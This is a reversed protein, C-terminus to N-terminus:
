EFNILAINNNEDLEGILNDKDLVLKIEKASRKKLKLNTVSYAVGGGFVIEGLDFDEIKSDGDMVSLMVNTADITGSNKVTVNFDLYIGKKVGEVDLFYLDALNEQSYLKKLDEIVSNDLQQSCSQLIPYMISNQDLSHDFGFVHLLEHLEINPWTCKVGRSTNYLLIVGETIVNYRGTQVVEKAGGEGAIFFDEDIDEISRSEESCVVKIDADEQTEYFKIIGINTKLESFAALMRQKKESNCDAAIKYYISNSNFKMNPYFQKVVYSLNITTQPPPHLTVNLDTPKGPLYKFLLIILFVFIGVLLILIVTLVVPSKEKTSIVPSKEKPQMILSKEKAPVIPSKEQGRKQKM